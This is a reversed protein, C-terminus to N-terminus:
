SLLECNIIISKMIYTIINPKDADVEQETITHKVLFEKVQKWTNKGRYFTLLIPIKRNHFNTCSDTHIGNILTDQQIHQQLFKKVYVCDVYCNEDIPILWKENDINLLFWSSVNFRQVFDKVQELNKPNYMRMMMDDAYSVCMEDMDVSTIKIKENERIHDEENAAITEVLCEFRVNDFQKCNVKVKEELGKTKQVYEHHLMMNEFVHDPVQNQKNENFFYKAVLFEVNSLNSRCKHVRELKPLCVTNIDIHGMLKNSDRQKEIKWARSENTIPDVINEIDMSLIGDVKVDDQNFQNINIMWKISWEVMEYFYKLPVIDHIKEGNIHVELEQVFCIIKKNIFILNIYSKKLEQIQHLITKM